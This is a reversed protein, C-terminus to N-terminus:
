PAPRPTINLVGNHAFALRIAERALLLASDMEDLYGVFSNENLSSSIPIAKSVFMAQTPGNVFGFGVKGIAMELNIEDMISELQTPSLKKLAAQHEPGLAMTGELQLYGERQKPNGVLVSRGSPLAILYIFNFKDDSQKQIGLLSSFFRASGAIETNTQTM